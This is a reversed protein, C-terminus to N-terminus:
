LRASAVNRLGDRARGVVTEGLNATVGAGARGGACPPGTVLTANAHGVGAAARVAHQLHVLAAVPEEAVRGLVVRGRGVVGVDRTLQDVLQVEGFAGRLKATFRNFGDSIESIEDQGQVPLQVRLDAHGSALGHITHSLQRLPGTLTRVLWTMAMAALLCALLAATVVWGLLQRAAATAVEPPYSVVVSWPTVGELVTVPNLVHEWGQADTFQYPRGQDIAALAEPPFRTITRM